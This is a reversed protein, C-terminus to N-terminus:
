DEKSAVKGQGTRSRTVGEEEPVEISKVERRLVSLWKGSKGSLQM